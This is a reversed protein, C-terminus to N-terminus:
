LLAKLVTLPHREGARHREVAERVLPSRHDDARQDLEELSLWLPRIIGEDLERDPEHDELEAAFAIRLFTEDDKPKRWLWVGLLDTVRVHHGTEELTERVAADVLDEEPDLHGAPQNLVVRGGASEEVFLYRGSREVVTAVTVHPQFGESM